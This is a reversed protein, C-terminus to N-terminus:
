EERKQNLATKIRAIDKKILSFVHPKEVRGAYRSLNLQYLEKKLSKEKDLLEQKSLGMLDKVKERKGM